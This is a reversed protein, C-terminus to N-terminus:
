EGDNLFRGVVFWVCEGVLVNCWYVAVAAILLLCIGSFGECSM